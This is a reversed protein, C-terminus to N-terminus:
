APLLELMLQKRSSENIIDLKYNNKYILKIRREASKLIDENLHNKQNIDKLFFIESTFTMKDEDSSLEFKVNDYGSTIEASELMYEILPLFLLPPIQKGSTRGKINFLIKESGCLIKKLNLYDNIGKIEKELAITESSTEYLMFSMIESLFEIGTIAKEPQKLTLSKIRNLSTFLFKPNIQSKLLALESIVLNKETEKQKLINEHWLVASKLLVGLISFIFNVELFTVYYMATENLFLWGELRFVKPLLVFVYLLAAPVTLILVIIFGIIAVPVIKKGDLHKESLLFYFLYFFTFYTLAYMLYDKVILTNSEKGISPITELGMFIM